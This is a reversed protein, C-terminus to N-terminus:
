IQQSALIVDQMAQNLAAIDEPTLTQTDVLAEETKRAQETLEHMGLNAAAGKISHVYRKAEDLEAQQILNTLDATLATYDGTFKTLLMKLLDKNGGLRELAEAEDLIM